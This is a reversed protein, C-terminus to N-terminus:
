YGDDEMEVTNKWTATISEGDNEQNFTYVEDKAGVWKEPPNIQTNPHTKLFEASKEYIDADHYNNPDGHEMREYKSEMSQGIAYYNDNGDGFSRIMNLLYEKVDEPIQEENENLMQSNRTLKNEVLFQKLNFDEM